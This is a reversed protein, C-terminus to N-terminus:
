ILSSLVYRIIGGDNKSSNLSMYFLHISWLEKSFIKKVSQSTKDFIAAFEFILNPSIMQFILTRNKDANVDFSFFFPLFNFLFIYLLCVFFFFIFMSTFNLFHGEM